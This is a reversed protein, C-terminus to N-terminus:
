NQGATPCPRTIKIVNSASSITFWQTFALVSKNDVTCQNNAAIGMVTGACMSSLSVQLKQDIQQATAEQQIIRTSCDKVTTNAFFTSIIYQGNVIPSPKLLRLGVADGFYIETGVLTIAEIPYAVPNTSASDPILVLSSITGM